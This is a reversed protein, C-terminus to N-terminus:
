WLKTDGPRREIPPKPLLSADGFHIARHVNESVCILFRPDFVEDRMEEVDEISLPNMHHVVIRSKIPYDELGLDNGNDRILIGDRTKRWRPSYYLAQNLYRDFGFTSEGVRSGIRLYEYRDEFTPIQCLELYTRISTKMTTM